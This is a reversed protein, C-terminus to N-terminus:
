AESYARINHTYDIPRLVISGAKRPKAAQKRTSRRLSDLSLGARRLEKDTRALSPGTTSPFTM